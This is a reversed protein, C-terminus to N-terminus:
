LKLDQPVYFDKSFKKRLLSSKKDNRSIKMRVKYKTNIIKKFEQINNPTLDKTSQYFKEIEITLRKDFIVEIVFDSFIHIYSCERFSEKGNINIGFYEGRNEDRFKKDLLTNGLITTFVYRKSKEINELIDKEVDSRGIVFWYHPDFLIIPINKPVYDVLVNTIHAWYTDCSLLSPFQYTISERDKLDFVADANETHSGFLTHIRKIWVLSLFYTGDVKAVVENDLLFGLAKYVAQKSTDLRVKNVKSVLIQGEIYPNKALVEIIIDEISRKNSILM